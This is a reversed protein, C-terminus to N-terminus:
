HEAITFTLKGLSDFDATYHGPKAPYMGGISGTMLIHGSEIDYGRELVQNILWALADRQGGLVEGAKGSLLTESGNALSVALSDLDNQEIPCIPGMLYGYSASNTAILDIGNPKTALNPSAIEIMPMCSAMQSFVSEASVRETISQAVIFGVETELLAQQQPLIEENGDFKGSAFLAGIIPHQIEMAQQAPLATLAAKFGTIPEARLTVYRHQIDYADALSLGADDASISDYHHRESFARLFKQPWDSM